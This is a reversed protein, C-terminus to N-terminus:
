VPIPIKRDKDKSTKGFEFTGKYIERKVLQRVGAGVWRWAKKRKLHSNKITATPIAEETLIDAIKKCTMKQDALMHFIRYVIDAESYLGLIVKKDYVKLHKSDDKCYGYPTVGGPWRGLTAARNIGLTMRQMITDREKEAIAALVTLVLKDEINETTSKIEVNCKKLDKVVQLTDCADRGIRDIKLVFVKNFKGAKADRLLMSGMPRESLPVAGSIGNDLYLYDLKLGNANLYKKVENEQIDINANERQEETSVRGYLANKFIEETKLLVM